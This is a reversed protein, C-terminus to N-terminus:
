SDLRQKLSIAVAAVGYVQIGAQGLTVIAARATAGTTYIDDLLLVPQRPPQRLFDPGLTFAGKLNQQRDSRSLGAQAATSRTRVLGHPRLPLNTIRCFSDAILEAQNFGRVKLKESHLPVPIVLLKPTSPTYTLWAEALGRGLSWALRPQQNYKLAAIARRLAGNYNGWAFVRPDGRWLSGPDGIKCSKVQHWCDPCPETASSRQCLPCLTNFLFPLLRQLRSSINV